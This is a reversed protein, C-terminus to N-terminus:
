FIIGSYDFIWCRLSIDPSWHHKVLTTQHRIKKSEEEDEKEKKENESYDLLSAINDLFRSKSTSDLRALLTMSLQVVEKMSQNTFADGPILDLLSQYKSSIHENSDERDTNIFNKDENMFPRAM